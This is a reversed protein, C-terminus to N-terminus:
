TMCCACAGVEKQPTSPLEEVEGRGGARPKSSRLRVPSRAEVTARRGAEVAMHRCASDQLHQTLGCESQFNSRGCFECRPMREINYSRFKSAIERM